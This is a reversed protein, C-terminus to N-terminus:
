RRSRSGLRGACRGGLRRERRQGRSCRSMSSTSSSAFAGARRATRRWARGDRAARRRRGLKQVQAEEILRELTTARRWRPSTSCRAPLRRSGCGTSSSSTALRRADRPPADPARGPAGRTEGPFGVNVVRPRSGLSSCSCRPGAPSSPGRLRLGAARRARDGFPGPSCASSTSAPTAGCSGATRGRAGRDRAAIHRRARLQAWTVMGHQARAIRAVEAEPTMTADRVGRWPAQAARDMLDNEIDRDRGTTPGSRCMPRTPAHRPIPAPRPIRGRCPRSLGRCPRPLGRACSHPGRHGDGGGGVEVM